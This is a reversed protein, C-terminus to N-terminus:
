RSRSWRRTLVSRSLCLLDASVTVNYFCFLGITFPVLVALALPVLARYFLRQRRRLSTQRGREYWQLLDAVVHSISRSTVAAYGEEGMRRRLETDDKLRQLYRRVVFCM